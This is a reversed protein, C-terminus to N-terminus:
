KRMNMDFGDVLKKVDRLWLCAAVFNTLMLIKHNVNFSDAFEVGAKLNQTEPVIFTNGSYAGDIHFWMNTLLVSHPQEPLTIRYHFAYSGERHRSYSSKRLM